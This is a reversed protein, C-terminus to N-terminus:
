DIADWIMACDEAGLHNNPERTAWVASYMDTTLLGDWKWTETAGRIGGVWIQSSSWAIFM